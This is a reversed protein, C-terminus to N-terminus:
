FFYSIMVIQLLLIIPMGLKFSNHKTKHRFIKMGLIIGITGGSIALFFFKRESVRWSGKIAKQKDGFMYFFSILNVFLIYVVIMEVTM